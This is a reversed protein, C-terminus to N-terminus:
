RFRGSVDEFIRVGAMQRVGMRIAQKIASDIVEKKIYYRLENLPIADFDEIAYTWVTGATALVGSDTRTRVLDAAPAAAVQDARQAERQAEAARANHEAAHRDRQESEAKAAAARRRDEEERAKAAIAAAERRAEDAKRRQYDTGLENLVKEIRTLRESFRKFFNDVQQGGRLYPEKEKDHANDAIKRLKRAEVVIKGVADLDAADEIRKPAANAQAAIAEVKEALDIYGESLVETISPPSNSPWANSPEPTPQDQKM